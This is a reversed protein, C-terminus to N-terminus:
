SLIFEGKSNLEKRVEQIQEISKTEKIKTLGNELIEKLKDKM